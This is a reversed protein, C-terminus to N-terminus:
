LPLEPWWRRYLDDGTHFDWNADIVVWARAPDDFKVTLMGTNAGPYHSWRVRGTGSPRTWPEERTTANEINTTFDSDRRPDGRRYSWVYYKVGDDQTCELAPAGGNNLVNMSTCRAGRYGTAAPDPPLLGPFLAVLDADRGWAPNAPRPTTTPTTTPPATTATATPEAPTGTGTVTSPSAALTVATSVVLVAALAAAARFWTNSLLSRRQDPAPELHAVQQPVGRVLGPGSPQPASPVPNSADPPLLPPAPIPPDPHPRILTPDSPAPVNAPRVPPIPVGALPSVAQSVVADLAARAAAAFSRCDPFRQERDKAMATAIVADLGVPLGPVVASARPPPEMLHAGLVAAPTSRTFPLAGTLMQFLTAGLAYIDARHDLPDGRIQEPAVYGLTAILAGAGTLATDDTRSRAIGFDTVFVHDAGDDDAVLLNAPKVDRHLLGRRHASDLGAAAQTLIQVARRPDLRGGDARILEAVDPGAVFRMSMWLLDDEAGRDYIEVINPHDLQVALEAERRFRARFEPDAGAVPDLVKLAVSRPLRPHRALYVTGMGGAGLTREIRYGAFVTGPTLTM